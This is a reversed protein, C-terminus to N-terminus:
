VSEVVKAPAGAVIAGAPVDTVVRSGLQVVAGKGITVGPFIISKAGIWAGAEIQIPQDPLGPGRDTTLYVDAGIVVDAGVQIPAVGTFMVCSAVRVRPGLRVNHGYDTYFPRHITVSPALPRGLIEQLLQRVEATGVCSTNLRQLLRQNQAIVAQQEASTENMEQVQGRPKGQIVRTYPCFQGM